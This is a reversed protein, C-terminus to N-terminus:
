TNKLTSRQYVMVLGIVVATGLITYVWPSQINSSSQEDPSASEGEFISEEAKEASKCCGESKDLGSDTDNTDNTSVSHMNAETKKSCCGGSQCGGSKCGIDLDTPEEAKVDSSETEQEESLVHAEECDKLFALAASESLDLKYRPDIEPSSLKINSASNDGAANLNRAQWSKPSVDEFVKCKLSHKEATVIQVKLLRGILSYDFKQQCEVSILVQQYFKNHAVLSKNDFATETVLVSQVEGIMHDYTTYSKFFQALEKTRSKVIRRDLQDMRAAVTGPRPFFQNIFLSPFKYKVCLSMTDKWDDDTESPYGAIIDTAISINPVTELLIDVLSEFDERTYERKMNYLVANSGSQIPIHMFSYVRDHNLIKALEEVHELIYPPNTMGVRMFCGEPIVKTLAWLLTPLDTDIDKGYAGTDESTIWLERCGDEFAVTARSVIEDVPFSKLDGRAQKTKCYTCSNLCGSNISIIEVLENKRIKPMDLVPRDKKDKAKKLFTVSEGRLTRVVIEVIQDIQEVGLISLSPTSASLNFKKLFAPGSSQPVCGALICCKNKSLADNISNIFHQESPGKVTCSNLVWCDSADKQSDELSVKYGAQSLLGAMYESDSSNHTCGWTKVFIHKDALDPCFSTNFNTFHSTPARTSRKSFGIPKKHPRREKHLLNPSTGLDEIDM